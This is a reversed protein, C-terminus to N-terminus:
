RRILTRAPVGATLYIAMAVGPGWISIEWQGAPGAAAACRRLGRRLFHAIRHWSVRGRVARNLYSTQNM